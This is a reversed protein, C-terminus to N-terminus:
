PHSLPPKGFKARLRNVREFVSHRGLIRRLTPRKGPIDAIILAVFMTLLGQGPLVLMAIGALLLAGAIVNKVVRYTWRLPAPWTASIPRAEKSLYDTPLVVLFAPVAAITGLFTVVSAVGLCGLLEGNQQIWDLM